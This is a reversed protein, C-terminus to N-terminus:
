TNKGFGILVQLPEVKLDGSSSPGLCRELFSGIFIWRAEKNGKFARTDHGEIMGRRLFAEAM